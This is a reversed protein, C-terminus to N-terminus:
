RPSGFRAAIEDILNSDGTLRLKDYGGHQGRHSVEIKYKDAEKRVEDTHKPHVYLISRGPQSRKSVRRLGRPTRYKRRVDGLSKEESYISDSEPPKQSPPNHFVKRYKLRLAKSDNGRQEEMTRHHPMDVRRREREQRQLDRTLNYTDPDRSGGRGRSSEQRSHHQNIDEVLSSIVGNADSSHPLLIRRMDGAVKRIVEQRDPMPGGEDEPRWYLRWDDGGFFMDSYYGALDIPGSYDVGGRTRSFDGSYDVEQIQHFLDILIDEFVDKNGDAVASALDPIARRLLTNANDPPMIKRYKIRLAKEPLPTYGSVTGPAAPKVYPKHPNRVRRVQPPLRDETRHWNDAPRKGHITRGENEVDLVEMPAEGPYEPAMVVDGRRIESRTVLETDDIPVSFEGPIELVYYGGRRDKRTEEPSVEEGTNKDIVKAGPFEHRIMALIDDDFEGNYDRLHFQFSQSSVDWDLPVYDGRRSEGFYPALAQSVEERERSLHQNARDRLKYAVEDLAWHSVTDIVDDISQPPHAHENGADMERFYDVVEQFNEDSLPNLREIYSGSNHIFENGREGEQAHTKETIEELLDRVVVSLEQELERVRRSLEDGSDDRRLNAVDRSAALSAMRMRHNSERGTGGDPLHRSILEMRIDSLEKLIPRVVENMQKLTLSRAGGPTIAKEGYFPDNMLHKVRYKLRLAKEKSKKGPKTLVRRIFRVHAPDGRNALFSVLADIVFPDYGVQGPYSLDTAANGEVPKYGDPTKVLDVGYFQGDRDEPPLSNVYEQAARAMDRTDDDEFVVPTYSDKTTTAHPVVFVEGGRTVVHVRGEKLGKYIVGERRMDETVGVVERAPQAMFMKGDDPLPVGNQYSAAAVLKNLIRSVSSRSRTFKKKWTKYEDSGFNLIKGNSLKVGAVNGDADRALGLGMGTLVSEYRRIAERANKTLELVREPFYVGYSMAAQDPDYSKIVWGDKGYRNNLEKMVKPTLRTVREGVIKDLDESSELGPILKAEELKNSHRTGAPRYDGKEPDFERGAVQWPTEDDAFVDIIPLDPNVIPEEDPLVIIGNRILYTMVWSYPYEDEWDFNEIVGYFQVDPGQEGSLEEGLAELTAEVGVAKVHNEFQEMLDATTQDNNRWFRFGWRAIRDIAEEATVPVRERRPKGPSEGGPVDRDSERDDPQDGGERVRDPEEPRPGGGAEELVGGDGPAAPPIKGVTRPDFGPRVHEAEPTTEENLREREGHFFSPDEEEPEAKEGYLPGKLVYKGRYKLRLTKEGSYNDYPKPEPRAYEESVGTHRNILGGITNYVAEEVDNLLAQSYPFVEDHVQYNDEYNEMNRSDLVDEYDEGFLKGMVPDLRTAVLSGFSDSSSPPWGLRELYRSVMRSVEEMNDGAGSNMYLDVIQPSIDEMMRYLFQEDIDGFDIGKKRYKTRLTKIPKPDPTATAADLKADLAMNAEQPSDYQYEEARNLDDDYLQVKGGGDPTPNSTGTVGKKRYKTRLTKEEDLNTPFPDRPNNNPTESAPIAPVSPVKVGIERNMEGVTNNIADLNEKELMTAKSDEYGSVVQAKKEGVFASLSKHLIPSMPKGAVRPLSIAKRTTDANAPLVVVSAELMLVKKLHVGQPIGRSYDAPIETGDIVQYGISGARVYRKAVLDFLQETFLGHEKNQGGQYFFMKATAVQGIADLNVTYAKTDPDECLGIPLTIEKGHDFLAIPNQRHRDCVIGGVELLDGVGDRRRGDAFPIVVAMRAEDLDLDPSIVSDLAFQGDNLKYSYQTTDLDKCRGDLTRNMCFDIM